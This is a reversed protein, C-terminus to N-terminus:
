LVAAYLRRGGQWSWGGWWCIKAHGQTESTHFTTNLDFM